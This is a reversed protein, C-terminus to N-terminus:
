SREGKKEAQPAMSRCWRNIVRKIGRSMVFPSCTELTVPQLPRNFTLMRLWVKGFCLVKLREKVTMEWCSVVMGDPNRYARLPRYEPQNEAFTVNAEKFNCPKM